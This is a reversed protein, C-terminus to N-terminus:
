AKSVASLTMPGIDNKACKLAKEARNSTGRRGYLQACFRTPVATLVETMDRALDDDMEGGDVVVVGLQQGPLLSARALSSLASTLPSRPFSEFRWADPDLTVDPSDASVAM